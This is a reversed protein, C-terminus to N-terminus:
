RKALSWRLGAEVAILRFPLNSVGAMPALVLNHDLRHLRLQIPRIADRPFSPANMATPECPPVPTM